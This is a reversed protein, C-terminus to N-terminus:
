SFRRRIIFRLHKEYNTKTLYNGQTNLNFYEPNIIDPFNWEVDSVENKEFEMSVIKLLSRDLAEDHCM